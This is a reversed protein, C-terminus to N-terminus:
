GGNISLVPIIDFTGNAVRHKRKLKLHANKLNRQHYLDLVKKANKYLTKTQRFDM